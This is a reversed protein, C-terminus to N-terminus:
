SKIMKIVSDLLNTMVTNEKVGLEDAVEKVTHGMIQYERHIDIKRQTLAPPEYM